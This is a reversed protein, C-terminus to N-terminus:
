FFTSLAVTGCIPAPPHNQFSQLMPGWIRMPAYLRWGRGAGNGVPDEGTLTWPEPPPALPPAPRLCRGGHPRTGLQGHALHRRPGLTPSGQSLSRSWAGTFSHTTPLSSGVLGRPGLGERHGRTSPPGAFRNAVRDQSLAWPHPLGGPLSLSGLARSPRPGPGRDM